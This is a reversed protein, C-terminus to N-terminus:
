IFKLKRLAVVVMKLLLWGHRWRQINTQGYERRGYRVPLDVIRLNYKSAGFLLDFDGFPDLFGFWKRNALIMEYHSKSLVKTGCLADKVSQSLLWTFALSFFKNAIENLFRMAEEDMPYVLRVGNALEAKGSWWAQYFRPLDEPSVTLDADLIMLLEGTAQAAGARVADGKGEGPQKLLKVKLAPYKQIEREIAGYTDDKSHGEVFILETGSGMAPVRAFIAPINGEENRAPVIVSVVSETAKAKPQPRAVILNALGLRSLPWLKALFRNMLRDLLPVPVPCPIATFSRIVEFGALYLLNALDDATLWNQPLQRKVLGLNEALRRPLEWVRSYANLIVRTSSECHRHIREFVKQV